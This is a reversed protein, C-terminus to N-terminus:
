IPVTGHQSPLIAMHATGPTTNMTQGSNRALSQFMKGFPKRFGMSAQLRVFNSVSSVTPFTEFSGAIQFYGMKEKTNPDEQLDRLALLFLNFTDPKKLLLEDIDLREVVGTVGRLGIVVGKKQADILDDWGKTKLLASM